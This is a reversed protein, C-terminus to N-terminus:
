RRVEENCLNWAASKSRGLAKGIELYTMGEARMQRAKAQEEPGIDWRSWGPRTVRRWANRATAGFIGTKRAIEDWTFGEARLRVIQADAEPKLRNRGKPHTPARFTALRAITAANPLDPTM